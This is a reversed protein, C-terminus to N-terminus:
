LRSAEEANIWDITSRAAGSMDPFLTSGTVGYMRCFGIIFPAESVPLILKVLCDTVNKDEIYKNLPKRYDEGKILSFLGSQAAINRNVGAPVPFINLDPFERVGRPDFCWIALYKNDKFKLADSAAFYAAVYSRKTWDLLRTPLGYHQAIAMYDYLYDPPWSDATQMGQKFESRVKQRSIFNDGPLYIGAQDCQELFINISRWESIANMDRGLNYSSYSERRFISPNLDWGSKAQGRFILNDANKILNNEPSLLDWLEKATSVPIEKVASM